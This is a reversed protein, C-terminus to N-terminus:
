PRGMRLLRLHRLFQEDCASARRIEIGVHFEHAEIRRCNRVIGFTSMGDIRIEVESQLELCFPVSVRLGSVSVDLITSIGIGAHASRLVTPYNIGHRPETRRDRGGEKGTKASSSFELRRDMKTVRIPEGSRAEINVM